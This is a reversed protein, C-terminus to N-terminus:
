ARGVYVIQMGADDCPSVLQINLPVASFATGQFITRICFPVNHTQIRAM